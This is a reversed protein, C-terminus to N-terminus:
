NTVMVFFKYHCKTELNSVVTKIFNKVRYATTTNDIMINNIILVLSANSIAYKLVM